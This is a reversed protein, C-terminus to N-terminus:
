RGTGSSSSGQELLLTRRGLVLEIRIILEERAVPKTVYDDAGERMALVATPMDDKGSLMVVAVDPHNTKIRPLLQMGSVDPMRIDLLVLDIKQRNLIEYADRASTATVCQYNSQTLGRELVELMDEEDDVILIRPLHTPHSFLDDLSEGQGRYAKNKLASAQRSLVEKIRSILVTFSVPKTVYDDAGERMAQVGYTTDALSSLMVVAVDPYQPRSKDLYNWGLCEPCRSTWCSSISRRECCSSRPRTDAKPPSVGFARSLGRELMQRVHDEDDVILVRVREAM